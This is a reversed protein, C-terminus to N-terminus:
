SRSREPRPFASAATRLRPWISRAWRDGHFRHLSSESVMWIAGAHDEILSLAYTTGIERPQDYVQVRGNKVRAVVGGDIFGTWLRRDGAVLLSSIWRPPLPELGLLDWHVFRLGDFRVGGADGGLWLYGDADQAFAHISGPPLGDKDTWTTFTYRDTLAAPPDQAFARSGAGCLAALGLCGALCLRQFRRM